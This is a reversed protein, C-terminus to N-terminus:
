GNLFPTPDVPDIFIGKYVGFHLHVGTSSGTTGMVGVQQGTKVKTGVTTKLSSMHGYLSYYGDSHLIIVCNGFGGQNFQAYVVTGDNVALIPTSSTGAFDIGKHFETQAGTIPNTRGGYGSTIKIPAPVPNKYKGNGSSGGPQLEGTETVYQKLLEAYFFNGANYYLYPKNFKLSVQNEYKYKAGTFGLSPGVVKVSYDEALPVTSKGGNKAINSIYSAGFNYSQNITDVDVNEAKGKQVLGAYFRVGQELSAVPDQISGAASGASESSQMPDNGNGGSEIMIIALIYAIYESIGNEEDLKTVLPEWKMVSEPLGQVGVVGTSGEKQNENQNIVFGILGMAVLGVVLFGGLNSIGLGILWKVVKKKDM